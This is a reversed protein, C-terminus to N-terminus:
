SGSQAAAKKKAKRGKVRKKRAKGSKKKPTEKELFKKAEPNRMRKLVMQAFKKLKPNESLKGLARAADATEQRQLSIMAANALASNKTAAAVLADAAQKGKFRGLARVSHSNLLQFDSAAFESLVPLLTPDPGTFHLLFASWGRVVKTKSKLGAKLAVTTEKKSRLGFITRAVGDQGRATEETALREMLLPVVDVGLAVLQNSAAMVTRSNRLKPVLDDVELALANKLAQSVKPDKSKKLVERATKRVAADKDELAQLYLPQTELGKLSALASVADRRVVVSEDTLLGKFAKGSAKDGSLFLAATIWVRAPHDPNESLTKLAATGVKGGISGLASIAARSVNVDKSKTLGRLAEVAKDAKLDGAATIAAQQVSADKASLAEVVLSISESDGAQGLAVLSDARVDTSEDAAAKRLLPLLAKDPKGLLALGVAARQRVVAADDELLQTVVSRADKAGYKGMRYAALGRVLPDDSKLDKALAVTAQELLTDVAVDMKAGRVGKYRIVGRDDVVYITPWSKVGWASAIPGRTNGGDWFSRWTINNAKMATRVREKPDSNIGILAFPQNALRKVLSREHPYM